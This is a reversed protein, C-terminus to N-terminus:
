VRSRTPKLVSEVSPLVLMSAHTTKRTFNRFTAYAGFKNEIRLFILTQLHFVKENVDRQVVLGTNGTTLWM